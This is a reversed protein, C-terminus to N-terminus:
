LVASPDEPVPEEASGTETDTKKRPTQKVPVFIESILTTVRATCSRPGECLGSLTKKGISGDANKYAVVIFSDVACASMEKELAAEFQALSGREKEQSAELANAAELSVNKTAKKNCRPCNTTISVQM